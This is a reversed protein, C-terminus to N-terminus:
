VGVRAILRESGPSVPDGCVGSSGGHEVVSGGQGGQRPRWSVSCVHGTGRVGEQLRLKGVRSGARAERRLGLDPDQLKRRAKGLFGRTGECGAPAASTETDGWM